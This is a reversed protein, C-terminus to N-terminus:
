EVFVYEQVTPIQQYARLKECRDTQRTSPSVVEINLIPEERYFSSKPSQDCSVFVDPYYFTDENARLKMDVM